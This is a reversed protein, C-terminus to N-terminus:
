IRRGRSDRWGTRSGIQSSDAQLISLDISKGLIKFFDVAMKKIQKSKKEKEVQMESAYKSNTHL